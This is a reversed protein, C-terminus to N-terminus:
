SNQFNRLVIEELTAEAPQEGTRWDRAHQVRESHRLMEWGSGRKRDKGRDAM